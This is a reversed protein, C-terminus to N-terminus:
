HTVSCVASMVEVIRQKRQHEENRDNTLTRESKYKNLLCNLTDSSKLCYLLSNTQITKRFPPQKRFYRVHKNPLVLNLNYYSKWIRIDYM